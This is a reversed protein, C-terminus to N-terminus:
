RLNEVYKTVKSNFINFLDRLLFFLNKDPVEYFHHTVRDTNQDYIRLYLTHPKETTEILKLDKILELIERNAKDVPLQKIRRELEIIKRYTSIKLLQKRKEKLALFLEYGIGLRHNFIYYFVPRDPRNPDPLGAIWDLDPIRKRLEKLKEYPVKFIVRYHFLLALIKNFERAEELSELSEYIKRIIELVEKKNKM